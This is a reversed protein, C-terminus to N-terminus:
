PAKTYVSLTFHTEIGEEEGEFQLADGVEVVWEFGNLADVFRYYEAPSAIKARVDFRNVLLASEQESSISQLAFAAFYHQLFEQFQTQDFYKHLAIDIAAEREQLNRLAAYQKGFERELSTLYAGNQQLEMNLARYEKIKPTFVFFGFFVVVSLLLFLLIVFGFSAFKSM